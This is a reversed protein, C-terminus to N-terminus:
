RKALAKGGAHIGRGVGLLGLALAFKELDNLLQEFTLTEPHTIVVVAGCVGAIVTLAVLVVTVPGWNSFDPM